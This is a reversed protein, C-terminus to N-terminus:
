LPKTLGAFIGLRPGYQPAFVGIGSGDRIQYVKDLANNVVLRAEVPGIGGLNMKRSAGLNLVTYGPLSTTNAFGNRLGSQYILDGTLRNGSWLYSGGTSITM